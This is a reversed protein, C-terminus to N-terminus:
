ARPVRHHLPQRDRRIAGGITEAACCVPEASHLSLGHLVALPLLRIVEEEEKEATSPSSQQQVNPARARLPEADHTAAAGGTVSKLQSTNSRVEALPVPGQHRHLAPCCTRASVRGRKSSLDGAIDGVNEAPITIEIDRDAELLVAQGKKVADIFAAKARASPSKRRTWPTTSGDTISVKVDQM